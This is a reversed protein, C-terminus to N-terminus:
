TLSRDEPDPMSLPSRTTGDARRRPQAHEADALAQAATVLGLHSFAQPFNGLIAGTATAVQESFLGLTSVFGAARELVDRPRHVPGTVALATPWGSRASCSPARVPKSATAQGTATSCGATTKCTQKSPTSPPWCVHTM